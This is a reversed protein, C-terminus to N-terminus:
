SNDLGNSYTYNIIGTHNRVLCGIITRQQPAGQQPM